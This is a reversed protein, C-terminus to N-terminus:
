LRALSHPLPPHPKPTPRVLPFSNGDSGVGLLFRSEYGAWLHEELSLARTVLKAAAAHSFRGGHKTAFTKEAKMFYANRMTSIYQMHPCTSAISASIKVMLMRHADPNKLLIQLGESECGSKMAKTVTARFRMAADTSGTELAAIKARNVKSGTETAKDEAADAAEANQLLAARSTERLAATFAEADSSQSSPRSTTPKQPPLVSFLAKQWSELNRGTGEWLLQVSENRSNTDVILPTGNARWDGEPLEITQIGLQLDEPLLDMIASLWKAAQQSMPSAINLRFVEEWESGCTFYALRKLITSAIVCSEYTPFRSQEEAEMNDFFLSTLGVFREFCHGNPIKHGNNSDIVFSVLATTDKIASPQAQIKGVLEGWKTFLELRMEKTGSAPSGRPVEGGMIFEYFKKFNDPGLYGFGDAGANSADVAALADPGHECFFACRIFDIADKRVADPVDEIPGFAGDDAGTSSIAWDFLGIDYRTGTCARPLIQACM